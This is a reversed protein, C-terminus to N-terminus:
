GGLTQIYAGTEKSFVMVEDISVYAFNISRIEGIREVESTLINITHDGCKAVIILESGMNEILDVEVPIQLLKDPGVQSLRISHPFVGILYDRGENIKESDTVDFKLLDNVYLYKEAGIRVCKAELINVGFPSYYKAATVDAPRRFCEKVPGTQIIKGDRIHILTNGLAAAEEPNPTAYLVTSKVEGFLRKLEIRLLERVKYDLNTLPEDFLYITPRKVLARAIVARQAEGGSCENPKKDLIHKIKLLEAVQNVQRRIEEEALKRIRLPSAINEYVTLHPYLAFTQFVMGINRKQPPLSTVDKGDFYIKGNDPQETGAIIRFLTTKGAGAPGLFVAIDGSKVRLSVNHLVRKGRFSKTINELVIETM